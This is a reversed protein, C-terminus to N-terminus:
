GHVLARGSEVHVRVAREQAAYGAPEVDGQRREWTVSGSVTGPNFGTYSGSGGADLTLPGFDSNWVGAWTNSVTPRVSALSSLLM